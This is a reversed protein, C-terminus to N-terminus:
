SVLHLAHGGGSPQLTATLGAADPAVRITESSPFRNDRLVTDELDIHRLVIACDIRLM